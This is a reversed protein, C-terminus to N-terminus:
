AEATGREGQVHECNDCPLYLRSPGRVHWSLGEEVDAEALVPSSEAQFDQFYFLMRISKGTLVVMRLMYIM